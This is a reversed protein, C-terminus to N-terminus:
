AKKQRALPRPRPREVNEKAATSTRTVRKTVVAVKQRKSPGAGGEDEDEEEADSDAARKRKPKRKPQNIGKLRDMKKQIKARKPTAEDVLEGSELLRELLETLADVAAEWEVSREVLGWWFLTALVLVLGTPGFMTPLTGLGEKPQIEEWWGWWMGVFSQEDDKKGLNAITPPSWWKRGANIFKSVQPPRGQATLRGGYAYGTAADMDLWANVCGGWKDGWSKGLAFAGYAKHMDHSFKQKDARAWAPHEPPPSEPRPAPTVDREEMNNPARTSNPTQVDNAGNPLQTGNTHGGNAGGGTQTTNPTQGDNAGGHGDNAGVGTQMTNATQGGNTAGDNTGDNVGGNAVGGTQAGETANGNTANPTQTGNADTPTQTANPTQTGNAGTPTQTANSTQTGNAGTPTQPTADRPAQTGNTTGNSSTSTANTNEVVRSSCEEKSFCRESFKVMSKEVEHYGGRDVEHWKQGTGWTKGAHVSRVEISGERDGVPGCLLISCNMGFKERIAEALPELYFAANKLAANLEEPTRTPTDARTLEWARVAAVHEADVAVKLENQFEESEENFVERTVENRVKIECPPEKELDLARKKAIAWKKEFPGKVKEDYWRRSYYHILQAKRPYGPGENELGSLIDAFLNKERQDVGRATRCYWAAIRKRVTVAAESRFTAEEQTLPGSEAADPMPADPDTPDETDTELDEDDKMRYGYKLFYLSTVKTYFRGLFVTGKENAVKWEDAFKLFFRRKTGHIWPIRGPKIEDGDPAPKKRSRRRRAAKGNPVNSHKATGRIVVM